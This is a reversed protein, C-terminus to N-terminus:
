TSKTLKIGLQKVSTKEIRAVNDANGDLTAIQQGDHLLVATVNERGALLQVTTAFALDSGATELLESVNHATGNAAIQIDINKGTQDNAFQVRTKSAM